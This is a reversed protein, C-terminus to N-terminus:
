SGNGKRHSMVRHFHSLVSERTTSVVCSPRPYIGVAGRRARNGGLPCLGHRRDGTVIESIRAEVGASFPDGRNVARQNVARRTDESILDANIAAAANVGAAAAGVLKATLDTLNGAVWVGPASTLGTADAEIHRGLGRPDEITTLGLDTLVDGRAVFRPMIVLVQFSVVHGSALRAGTLQDGTVDLATVEGDVVSIDRAALQEWEEDTPKPAAHSLLTVQPSWQRWLLAQQVASPGTGLVAIPQDRSEWGHCYPCHLVDRGWRQRLGPIDPLEDVLGTTVLLRRATYTQGDDTVVFGHEDHTSHHERHLSTVRTHRVQGGYRTVEAAGLGLLDTPTIGDRSLFGHAESAPANRPQGSDLVLVSRRARALTVAGSLGAAGGGIVIVEFSHESM